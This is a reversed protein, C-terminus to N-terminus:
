EPGCEGTGLGPTLLEYLVGPISSHLTVRAKDRCNSLLSKVGNSSAPDEDTCPFAGETNTREIIM